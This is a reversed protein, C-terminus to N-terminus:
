SRPKVNQYFHVFCLCFLDIIRVSCKTHLAVFCYFIIFVFPFYFSYNFLGGFLSTHYNLCQLTNYVYM